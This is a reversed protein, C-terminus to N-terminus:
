TDSISFARLISRPSRDLPHVDFYEWGNPKGDAQDTINCVEEALM